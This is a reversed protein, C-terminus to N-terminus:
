SRGVFRPRPRPGGPGHGAELKATCCRRLRQSSGGDISRFTLLGTHQKGEDLAIATCMGACVSISTPRHRVDVSGSSKQKQVMVLQDFRVDLDSM